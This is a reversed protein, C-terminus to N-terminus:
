VFGKPKFSGQVQRRRLHGVLAAEELRLWDKLGSLSKKSGFSAGFSKSTQLRESGDKAAFHKIKLMM